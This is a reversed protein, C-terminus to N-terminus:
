RGPAGAAQRGLLAALGAVSLVVGRRALRTRLLERARTLWISVTGRPCGLRQAAEEYTCGELYCLGVAARYKEPLKSLEQDLVPGLDRLAQEAPDAERGPLTAPDVGPSQRRARRKLDDNARLAVRYAVQHLWAALAERRGISAAKRVLLLFTAQFADDADDANRLVRRCVGLVLREHRRVLLEFAVEDRHKQFRELLQADTVGTADAAGAVRRLHTVVATLPQAM